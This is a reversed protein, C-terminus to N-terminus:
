PLPRQSAMPPYKATLGSKLVTAPAKNVWTPSVGPRPASIDFSQNWSLKLSSFNIFSPLNTPIWTNFPFPLAALASNCLTSPMDPAVIM